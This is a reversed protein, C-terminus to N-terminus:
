TKQIKKQPLKGKFFLYQKSSSASSTGERLNHWRKMIANRLIHTEKLQVMISNKIEKM